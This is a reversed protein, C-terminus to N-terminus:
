EVPVSRSGAQEDADPPLAKRDRALIAQKLVFEIQGNVSRLDQQAWRELAEHTAPDGDGHILQLYLRDGDLVPSSTLGFNLRLRGYRGVYDRIDHVINGPVDYKSYRQLADLIEPATLGAAAANWLSLPTIRYTHLYEPSKELEAFPALADRAEAYRPNDVEVLVSNLARYPDVLEKDHDPPREGHCPVPRM